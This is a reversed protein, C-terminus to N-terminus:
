LYTIFHPSMILSLPRQLKAALESKCKAIGRAGSDRSLVVFVLKYEAVWKCDNLIESSSLPM